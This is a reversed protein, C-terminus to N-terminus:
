LSPWTKGDGERDVVAGDRAVVRGNKIVLRRQPHMVVAEAANHVPIVVLDAVCGVDLGYDELGLTRAGNYTAADLALGIHEDRRLDSRYAVFMARELMDGNGFPSWLDRIGDNGCALNVGRDAFTRVPPVPRNFVAATTVSIRAEALAGLVASEVEPSMGALCFAHSITVKGEMGLSRTREIIQRVQWVGLEGPDHLHIDVECGLKEALGFITDLQGTPDSDFGAPDVGGIATAGMRIAEELLSATGPRTIIGQQPFAVQQVDIRGELATAATQVSEVGRLGVEPDIDTHTRIHTTGCLSMQELLAAPREVSPYGVDFRRTRESAIREAVSPGATHPVWPGGWLTKDIHCHSEVLGPLVLGGGGDVEWADPTASQGAAIAQIRGDVIRIDVPTDDAPRRVNRLLLTPPHTSM